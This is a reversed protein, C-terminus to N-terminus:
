RGELFELRIAVFNRRPLERSHVCKSGAQRPILYSAYQEVPAPFAMRFPSATFMTRQVKRMRARPKTMASKETRIAPCSTGGVSAM